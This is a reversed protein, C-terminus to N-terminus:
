LSQMCVTVAAIYARSYVNCLPNLPPSCTVGYQQMTVNKYVPLGTYSVLASNSGPAQSWTLVVKGTGLNLTGATAKATPTGIDDFSFSGDVDVEFTQIAVNGDFITGTLTGAVIPTNTLTYTTTTTSGLDVGTNQNTVTKSKLCRFFAMASGGYVFNGM